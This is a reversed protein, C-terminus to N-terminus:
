PRPVAGLEELLSRVLRYTLGWVTQGEYRWCPLHLPPDAYPYVCTDDLAGRAVDGLPLWFAAEAEVGLRPTCPREEVFVFPTVTMPLIKGRATVPIAPLPGLLRADGRLDVGLEEETERVATAVLDADGPEARGGPLAVHGSWPDSLREARKMLLVSPGSAGPRLLAAVAAHRVETSSSAVPPRVRALAEAIRAPLWRDDATM